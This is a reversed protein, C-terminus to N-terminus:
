TLLSVTTYLMQGKRAKEPRRGNTHTFIDIFPQIRVQATFCEQYDFSFFFSSYVNEENVPAKGSM